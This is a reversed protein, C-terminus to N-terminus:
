YEQMISRVNCANSLQQAERDMNKCKYHMKLHDIMHFFHEVIADIIELCKEGRYRAGCLMNPELTKNYQINLHSAFDELEM